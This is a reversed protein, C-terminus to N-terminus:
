AGRRRAPPARRLTIRSPSRPHRKGSRAYPAIQKKGKEKADCENGKRRIGAGNAGFGLDRVADVGRVTDDGSKRVLERRLQSSFKCLNESDQAM